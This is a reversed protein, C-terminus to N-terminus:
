SRSQEGEEDRPSCRFSAASQTFPDIVDAAGQASIPTVCNLPRPEHQPLTWFGCRLGAQCGPRKPAPSRRAPGIPARQPVQAPPPVRLRLPATLRRAARHTPPYRLPVPCSRPGPPPPLLRAPCPPSRPSSRPPEPQQEPPSLSSHPARPPTRQPASAAESACPADTPDWRQPPEALFPDPDQDPDPTGSTAPSTQPTGLTSQTQLWIVGATQLMVTINWQKHM